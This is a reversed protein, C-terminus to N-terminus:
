LSISAILLRFTNITSKVNALAKLLRQLCRAPTQFVGAMERNMNRGPCDCTLFVGDHCPGGSRAHSKQYQFITIKQMRVNCCPRSSRTVAFNRKRMRDGQHKASNPSCCTRRAHRRPYVPQRRFNRRLFTCSSAGAPLDYITLEAPQLM